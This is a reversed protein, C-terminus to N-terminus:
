TITFSALISGSKISSDFYQARVEKYAEDSFFRDKTEEDPFSLVFVRNFPDDAQGALMESIRFDYRFHGSHAELTPTMGARYQDYQADNTVHLGVLLEFRATNTTSTTSM